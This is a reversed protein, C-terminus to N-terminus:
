IFDFNFARKEGKFRKDCSLNELKKRDKPLQSFDM